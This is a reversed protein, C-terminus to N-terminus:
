CVVPPKRTLLTVQLAYRQPMHLPFRPMRVVIMIVAFEAPCLERRRADPIFDLISIACLAPIVPYTRLAELVELLLELPRKDRLQRGVLLALRRIRRRRIRPQADANPRM